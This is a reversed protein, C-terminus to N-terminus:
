GMKFNHVSWGDKHYYNGTARLDTIMKDSNLGTYGRISDYSRHVTPKEGHRMVVYFTKVFRINVRGKGMIEGRPIQWLSYEQWKILREGRHYKYWPMNEVKTGYWNAMEAGSRFFEVRKDQVGPLPVLM